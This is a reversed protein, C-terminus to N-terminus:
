YILIKNLRTCLIVTLYVDSFIKWRFSSHASFFLSFPHNLKALLSVFLSLSFSMHLFSSPFLWKSSFSPPLAALGLWSITDEVLFVECERKSGGSKTHKNGGSEKEGGRIYHTGQNPRWELVCKRYCFYVNM